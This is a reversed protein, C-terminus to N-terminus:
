RGVLVIVSRPRLTLMKQNELRPESGLDYIDDPAKAGTNAFCYWAKGKALAPLEFTQEEWHMNMAVFIDDDQALGGKAYAGCLM